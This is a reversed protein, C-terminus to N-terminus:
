NQFTRMSVNETSLDPRLPNGSQPEAFINCLESGITCTPKGDITLVYNSAKAIEDQDYPDGVYIWYTGSLTTTEKEKTLSFASLGAIITIAIFAAIIKKM